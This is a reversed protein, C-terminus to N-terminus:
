RLRQPQQSPVKLLAALVIACIALVVGNAYFPAKSGIADYLWGGVLPGLTAGVGAAMTYMGFARGRQDGGTLDAVLAEEAPDGAAYCLAQFAWLAALGCLSAIHPIYFSSSSAAILGLVMLSKRGFRDAMAGLRSPLVAWIIAAPFYALGLNAVDTTLREQLFIMLIPTVMAWSAGTVATVVLLLIWPRSRPLPRRDVHHVRVPNTEPIYILAFVVAALCMTGYGIFLPCWGSKFGVATLIGFGIFTGIIAGQYSAQPMSGFSRGRSDREAVDATISQVSLWLLASATGECARALTIQWVQVSFAIIFMTISYGVLGLLLFPRRGYRDLAVGLIPRLLVSMFAFISFFLGIQIANAGIRRGYIPLAFM